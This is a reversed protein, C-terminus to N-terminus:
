GLRAAPLAHIVDSHIGSAECLCHLVGVDVFLERLAQEFKQVRTCLSCDGKREDTVYVQGSQGFSLGAPHMQYHEGHTRGWIDVHSNCERVSVRNQFAELQSAKVLHTHPASFFPLTEMDITTRANNASCCAPSSPRMRMVKSSNSLLREPRTSRM